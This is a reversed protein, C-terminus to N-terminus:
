QFPGISQSLTGDAEYRNAYAFAVSPVVIESTVYGSLRAAFLRPNRKAPSAKARGPPGPSAPAAAAASASAASERYRESGGPPSPAGAPGPRAGTAVGFGGPPAGAALVGVVITPTGCVALGSAPM